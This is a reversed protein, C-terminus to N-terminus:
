RGMLGLLVSAADYRDGDADDDDNLRHSVDSDSSKRCLSSSEMHDSEDTIMPANKPPKRSEGAHDQVLPENETNESTTPRAVGGFLQDLLAGHPGSPDNDKASDAHAANDAPHYIRRKKMPRSQKNGGGSSGLSSSRLKDGQHSKSPSSETKKKAPSATTPNNKTNKEPLEDAPLAVKFTTQDRPQQEPTSTKKKAKHVVEPVKAKKKKNARKAKSKKEGSSLKKAKAKAKKEGMRGSPNKSQKSKYAAMMPLEDAPSEPGKARGENAAVDRKTVHSSARGKSDNSQIASREPQMVQVAPGLSGPDLSPGSPKLPAAQAQRTLGVVMSRAPAVPSAASLDVKYPEIATICGAVRMGLDASAPSLAHPSSSGAFREWISRLEALTAEVVKPFECKLQAPDSTEPLLDALAPSIEPVRSVVVTLFKAIINNDMASATANGNLNMRANMDAMDNPPSPAKGNNITVHALSPPSPNKNLNNMGVQASLNNLPSSAQSPQLPNGDMDVEIGNNFYRLPKQSIEGPTQHNLNNTGAQQVLMPSTPQGGQGQKMTDIGKGPMRRALVTDVYAQDIMDLGLRRDGDMSINGQAPRGQLGGGQVDLGGQLNGGQFRDLGGQARMLQAELMQQKELAESKNRRLESTRQILDEDSLQQLQLLRNLHEREAPLNPEAGRSMKITQQQNQQQYYISVAEQQKQQHKIAELQLEKIAEEELLRRQIFRERLATEEAAAQDMGAGRSMMAAQQQQQQQQRKIAEQHELQQQQRKFVDEELIRRQMLQERLTKEEAQQVSLGREMGIGGYSAADFQREREGSGVFSGVGGGFAGLQDAQRIREMERQRAAAQQQEQLALMREISDAGFSDDQHALMQQQQQHQQAAIRDRMARAALEADMIRAHADQLVPLQLRLIEREAAAAAAAPAFAGNRSQAALLEQRRLEGANYGAPHLSNAEAAAAHSGAATREYMPHSLMRGGMVGAYEPLRNMTRKKKPKTDKASRSRHSKKTSHKSSDKVERDKKTNEISGITSTHKANNRRSEGIKASAVVSEYGKDNLRAAAGKKNRRAGFSRDHNAKLGHKLRRAGSTMWKTM